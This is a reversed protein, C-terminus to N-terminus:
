TKVASRSCMVHCLNDCVFMSFAGNRVFAVQEQNKNKREVGSIFVTLESTLM